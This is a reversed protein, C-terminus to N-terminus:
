DLACVDWNSHDCTTTVLKPRRESQIDIPNGTVQSEGLKVRKALIGPGGNGLATLNRITVNGSAFVGEEDNGNTTVGDGRITTGVIGQGSLSGILGNGNSTVDRLVMKTGIIGPGGNGTVTLRSLYSKGFFAGYMGANQFNQIIVNDIVLKRVVPREDQQLNSILGYYAEFNGELVGPAAASSIISCSVHQCFVATMDEAVTLTFGNLDLTSKADLYIGVGGLNCSLDGSLTATQGPPVFM